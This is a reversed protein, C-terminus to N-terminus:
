IVTDTNRVTMTCENALTTRYAKFDAAIKIRGPKDILVRVNDLLSVPCTLIIEEYVGAAILDGTFSVKFERQTTASFDDYEAWSAFEMEFSGSLSLKNEPVPERSYQSGLKPRPGFGNDLKLTFHDVEVDVDNWKVIGQHYVSVKSTGYSPTSKAERTEDTGILSATVRLIEDVGCSFEISSVKMGRYVFAKNPETVFQSSDRFVEMTMGALPTDSITFVHQYATPANTVDPQTTDVSGFAHKAIKLWGGYTADFVLDGAVSIMGAIVHDNLVGRRLVSNSEIRAVQKSISESILEIFHTRAVASGWVVEDGFGIHSRMGLGVNQAM